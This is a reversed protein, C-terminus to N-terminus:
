QHFADQPKWMVPDQQAKSLSETPLCGSHWGEHDPRQDWSHLFEEKKKQRQRKRDIYICM